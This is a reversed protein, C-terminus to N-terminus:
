WKKDKEYGLMILIDGYQRKFEYKHDETFHNQWDGPIGKRMHSKSEEVGLKRGTRGQFSYKEIIKLAKKTEKGDFGYKKFIRVFCDRPNLIVDEYKLEIIQPNFYNWRSIDEIVSGTTHGKELNNTMEFLIGEDKSLSNLYEQYSMGDYEERSIHCWEEHCWLHYFYASITIDRPDRIMHSGVYAPLNEFNVNSHWQLWIDTDEELEEQVCRQYKLNFKKSIEYLSKNFLMTGCKHHTFHTILVKNKVSCNRSFIDITSNLAADVKSKVLRLPRLKKLSKLMSNNFM